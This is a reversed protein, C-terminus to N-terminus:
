IHSLIIGIRGLRALRWLINYHERRHITRKTAARCATVMCCHDNVQSTAILSLSAMYRVPNACCGGLLREVAAQTQKKCLYNIYGKNTLGRAGGCTMLPVDPPLDKSKSAAACVHTAATSTQMSASWSCTFFSKKNIIQNSYM